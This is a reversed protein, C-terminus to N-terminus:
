KLVIEELKNDEKKKHIYFSSDFSFTGSLIMEVFSIETCAFMGSFSIMWESVSTISSVSSFFSLCVWVHPSSSFSTPNCIVALTSGENWNEGDIAGIVVRSSACSWIWSCSNSSYLLKM